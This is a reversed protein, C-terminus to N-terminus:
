NRTQCLEAKGRAYFCFFELSCCGVAAEIFDEVALRIGFLRVIGIHEQKRRHLFFEEVPHANNASFTYLYTKIKKM